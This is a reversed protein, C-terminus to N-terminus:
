ARVLEDMPKLGAADPFVKRDLTAADIGLHDRLV